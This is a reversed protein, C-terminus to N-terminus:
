RPQISSRDTAGALPISVVGAPFFGSQQQERDFVLVAAGKWDFSPSFNLLVNTEPGRYKPSGPPFLEPPVIIHNEAMRELYRVNWWWM